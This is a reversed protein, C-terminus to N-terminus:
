SCPCEGESSSSANKSLSVGKGTTWRSPSCPSPRHMPNCSESSLEETICISGHLHEQWLRKVEHALMAAVFM